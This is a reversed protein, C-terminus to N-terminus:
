DKGDRLRGLRRLRELDEDRMEFRAAYAWCVLVFPVPVLVFLMLALALPIGLVDPGGHPLALLALFSGALVIWLIVLPWRLGQLRGGRAAGLAILAVPFTTVALAAVWRLVPADVCFAVLAAPACLSLLLLATRDAL